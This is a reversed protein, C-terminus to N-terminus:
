VEQYGRGLGINAELLHALRAARGPQEFARADAAGPLGVVRAASAYAALRAATAATIGKDAPHLTSEQEVALAKAEDADAAPTQELGFTTAANRFFSLFTPKLAGEVLEDRRLRFDHPEEGELAAETFAPVVESQQISGHAESTSGSDSQHQYQLM